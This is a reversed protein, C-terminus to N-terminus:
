KFRTGERSGPREDSVIGWAYFVPTFLVRAGREWASHDLQKLLDITEAKGPDPTLDAAIVQWEMEWETRAPAESWQGGLLGTEIAQLGAQHFIDNLKRGILPDAGQRRLAEMQWKGIVALEEPYDIRGGYDPEALALVAGGRRTVRAMERIVRAADDVWLLLFHCLSLDFAGGPYPLHHADGEALRASPSHRAAQTLHPRFRDLGCVLGGDELEQLIAGTGCGVELIRRAKEMGARRYLYQRLEKTWGAQQVFREHWFGSDWSKKLTGENRLM